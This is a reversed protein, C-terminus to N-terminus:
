KDTSPQKTTTQIQLRPSPTLVSFGTEPTDCTRVLYDYHQRIGGGRVGTLHTIGISLLKM